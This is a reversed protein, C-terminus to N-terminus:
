TDTMWQMPDTDLVAAKRGAPSAETSKRAGDWSSSSIRWAAVSFHLLTVSLGPESLPGQQTERPQSKLPLLASPETQLFMNSVKLMLSPNQPLFLPAKSLDETKISSILVVQLSVVPSLKPGILLEQNPSILSFNPQKHKANYYNIQMGPVVFGLQVM